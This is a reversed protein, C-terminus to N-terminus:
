NAAMETIRKFALLFDQPSLPKKIIGLIGFLPLDDMCLDAGDPTHLIVPIMSGMVRLLHAVQMGDLGPMRYDTLLIDFEGNLIYRISKAPCTESQTRYGLNSLATAAFTAANIDPDLVLVRKGEAELGSM